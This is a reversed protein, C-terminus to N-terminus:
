SRSGNRLLVRLPMVRITSFDFFVPSLIAFGNVVAGGILLILSRAQISQGVLTVPDHQSKALVPFLVTQSLRNSVEVGVRAFTLAISYVGLEDLTLLKGMLIRDLSGSLFAVITGFFIWKGFHLLERACDRDWDMRNKLPRNLWHSLPLRVVSYILWGSVM